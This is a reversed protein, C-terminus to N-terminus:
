DDSNSGFPELKSMGPRMKGLGKKAHRGQCRATVMTREDMVGNLAACNEATTFLLKVARNESDRKSDRSVNQLLRLLDELYHEGCAAFDLREIGDMIILLLRPALALVDSLIKLAQPWTRLTGDLADFKEASLTSCQETPKLTAIVQRILAYLM